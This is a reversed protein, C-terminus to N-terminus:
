EEGRHSGRAALDGRAEARLAEGDADATRQEAERHAEADEADPLLNRVEKEPDDAALLLRHLEVEEVSQGDVDLRPVDGGDAYERDYYRREGAEHGCVL